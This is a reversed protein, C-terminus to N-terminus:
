GSSELRELSKHDSSELELNRCDVLEQDLGGDEAQMLGLSLYGLASVSVSWLPLGVAVTSLLHPWNSHHLTGFWM